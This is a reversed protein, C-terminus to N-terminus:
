TNKLESEPINQKVGEKELKSDAPKNPTEQLDDVRCMLDVAVEGVLNQGFMYATATVAGMGLLTLKKSNM